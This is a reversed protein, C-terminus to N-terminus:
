YKFIIVNVLLNEKDIDDIFLDFIQVNVNYM